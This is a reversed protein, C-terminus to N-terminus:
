PQQLKKELPGPGTKARIAAVLEKEERMEARIEDLHDYAYSLAAHVQALSLHPYAAIIEDPSHGRLDHLVYIDSVRIRTNAVFARSQGARSPRIDIHSAQTNEM